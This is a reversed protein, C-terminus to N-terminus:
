DMSDFSHRDCNYRCSMAGVENDTALRCCIGAIKEATSAALLTFYTYLKELRGEIGIELGGHLWGRVSEHMAGDLSVIIVVVELDPRFINPERNYRLQTEVDVGM